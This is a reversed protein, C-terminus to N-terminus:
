PLNEIIHNTKSKHRIVSYKNPVWMSKKCTGCKKTLGAVISKTEEISLKKMIDEKTKNNFYGNLFRVM